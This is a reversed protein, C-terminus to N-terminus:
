GLVYSEGKGIQQLRKILNNIAKDEGFEAIRATLRQVADMEGQDHAAVMASFAERKQEEWEPVPEFIEVPTSRGRLVIRGMPRYWNLGSREAAERSVLVTTDLSKNAAELRAATNMSDGFATYQIRGEGGFNGVIAPGFHMGVRTRGIPPVGEPASKRFEEGAEYMAYAARAAREGDDPYSIPAGWFAVVADGVFKDLTGGYKLVVAALRDLYDNLLQAVMEPEIAHSLKTFGELDTFVCFIERKEGHLALKDPDKLIEAAVSKPLYKGLAGQAFARQKAGVVRVAAGVGAFAILWGLGWGLSPLGLTDVNMSQLVVPLSMFLGIQLVLVLGTLWARARFMASLGGAVIVALAMLWQAWGPIAAPKAHDLLQALMHAHIEMGIMLRKGTVQDGITTIPTEFQDFDVIDGGILIYRGEIQDRLFQAADPDVFLDIPLKNFVPRETSAPLRYRIARDYDAFSDDDALAAAFFTPLSKPQDPWRRAVGDTDTALRINTPHVTDSSIENLFGKLWEQQEYQIAEANTDVSAYAVHTPTKMSKFAGILLADDDQPQDFLIDIGIAKAGLADLNTLANALITRDVPSRQGTARLTQDNYVVMTIRPDQEVEEAFSISRIDYLVAEADSLFPMEWSYRAITLALLMLMFTGILRVPGLQGAVRQLLRQTEVSGATAPPPSPATTASM